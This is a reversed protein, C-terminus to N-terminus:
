LPTRWIDIRGVGKEHPQLAKGVITGPRFVEIGDIIMPSAKMAHGPLSSTTLFDGKRIPGNEDVV